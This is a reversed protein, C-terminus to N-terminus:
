LCDGCGSDSRPIGCERCYGATCSACTFLPHTHTHSRHVPSHVVNVERGVEDWLGGTEEELQHPSASRIDADNQKSNMTYHNFGATNIIIHKPGDADSDEPSNTVVTLNRPSLSAWQILTDPPLTM